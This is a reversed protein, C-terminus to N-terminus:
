LTATFSSTAALALSCGFTVAADALLWNMRFVTLTGLM